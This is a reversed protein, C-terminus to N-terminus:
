QRIWGFGAARVMEISRRRAEFTVDQELFTNVGLPNTPRPSVEVEPAVDPQRAALGSYFAILRHRTELDLRELPQARVAASGGGILIALAVALVLLRKM